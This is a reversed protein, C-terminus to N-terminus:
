SFPMRIGEGEKCFSKEPKYEFDPEGSFGLCSAQKKFHELDSDTLTPTKGLLYLAHGHLEDPVDTDSLKLLQLMQKFNKVTTNGSLLLCDQCSPLVHFESTMNPLKMTVTNGEITGNETGSFCTGGINNEESMVIESPSSAKINMWSSETVNLIANFTNSDTNGALLHWKGYLLSPDALSLPTVLPQCEEPTLASSSLFLAAFLLHSRLWSNM